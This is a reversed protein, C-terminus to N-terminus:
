GLLLVSLGSEWTGRLWADCPAQERVRFAPRDDM